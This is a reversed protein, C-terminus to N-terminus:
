ADVAVLGELSTLELLPEFELWDAGEPVPGPRFVLLEAGACDALGLFVEFSSSEVSM